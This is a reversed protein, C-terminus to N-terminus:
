RKLPIIYRTAVWGEIADPSDSFEVEVKTWNKKKQIIRVLKGRKLKKIVRSKIKPKQRLNLTEATVVRYGKDEEVDIESPLNKIAHTVERRSRLPVSDLISQISPTFLGAMVSVFFAVIIHNLIWIAIAQAPKKLRALRSLAEEISRGESIKEFFTSVEISLESVNMSQNELSLSGDIGIQFKPISLEQALSKIKETVDLFNFAEQNILAQFANTAAGKSVFLSRFTEQKEIIEKIYDPPEIMNRLREQEEVMKQIHDAPELTKRLSDQEDIIKQIHYSPHGMKRFNEQEDLMRQIYDPPELMKQFSDQEDLIQQIHYAPEIMKRLNEQEELMRQIYDPPELMERLTKQDDIVKQMYDTLKSM